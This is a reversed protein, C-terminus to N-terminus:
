RNGSRECIISRCLFFSFQSCILFDYIVRRTLAMNSQPPPCFDFSFLNHALESTQVTQYNVIMESVSTLPLLSSPPPLTTYLFHFLKSVGDTTWDFPCNIGRWTRNSTISGEIRDQRAPESTAVGDSTVAKSGSTRFNIRIKSVYFFFYCFNKKGGLDLDIWDKSRFQL